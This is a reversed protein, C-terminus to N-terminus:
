LMEAFDKATKIRDSVGVGNLDSGLIRIDDTILFDTHSRLLDYCPIANNWTFKNLLKLDFSGFIQKLENKVNEIELENLEIEGKVLVTYLNTNSVHPFINSNFMVGVTKFKHSTPLLIGFSNPHVQTESTFHLISLAINRLKDFSSTDFEEALMDILSSGSCCLIIKDFSEESNLLRVKKDKTIKSVRERVISEPNIKSLLKNILNINGGKIVCIKPPKGRSRIFDFISKGQRLAEYLNPFVLKMSLIDASEGYVGRLGPSLFSNIVEEGVIPKLVESITGPHVSNNRKFIGALTRFKTRLSLNSFLFKSLSKPIKNITTTFVMQEFNNIRPYVIESDFELDKILQIFDPKAVLINAGLELINDEINKTKISGGFDEAFLKYDISRQELYYALTLGTIGGGIIGIRM